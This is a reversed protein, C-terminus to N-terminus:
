IDSGHCRAQLNFLNTRPLLEERALGTRCNTTALVTLCMPAQSPHAEGQSSSGRTKLVEKYCMARGQPKKPPHETGVRPEMQKMQQGDMQVARM